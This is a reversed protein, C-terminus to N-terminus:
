DSECGRWEKDDAGDDDDDNGGGARRKRKGTPAARIRRRGAKGPAKDDLIFLVEQDGQHRAAEIRRILDTKVDGASFPLGFSAAVSLLQERSLAHLNSPLEDASLQSIDAADVRMQPGRPAPRSTSAAAAEGAGSTLLLPAPGHGGRGVARMHAALAKILWPKPDEGAPACSAASEDLGSLRM